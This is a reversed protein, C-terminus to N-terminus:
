QDASQGDTLTAVDRRTREPRHAVSAFPAAAPHAMADTPLAVAVTPTDPLGAM